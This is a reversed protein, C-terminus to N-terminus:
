ILALQRCAFEKAEASAERSGLLGVFQQQLHRLEAPKGAADRVRDQVACLDQRDDLAKYHVIKVIDPDLQIAAALRTMGTLCVFALAATIFRTLNSIRRMFEDGWNM